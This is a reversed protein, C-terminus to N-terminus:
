ALEAPRERVWGRVGGVVGGSGRCFRCVSPGAEEWVEDGYIVRRDGVQRRGIHCIYSSRTVHKLLTIKTKSLRESGKVMRTDALAVLGQQVKMGLCFTM